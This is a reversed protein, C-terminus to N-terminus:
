PFMLMTELVGEEMLVSYSAHFPIAPRSTRTGSALELHSFFSLSVHYPCLICCLVLYPPISEMQKEAKKCRRLRLYHACHASVM